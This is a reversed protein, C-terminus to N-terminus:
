AADGGNTLHAPHYAAINIQPNLQAVRAPALIIHHAPGLNEARVTQGRASKLACWATQLLAPHCNVSAPDTVTALARPPFPHHLPAEM